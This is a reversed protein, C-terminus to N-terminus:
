KKWKYKVLTQEKLPVFNDYINSLLALTDDMSLDHSLLLNKVQDDYEAQELYYSLCYLNYNRIIEQIKNNCQNMFDLDLESIHYHSEISDKMEPASIEWVENIACLRLRHERTAYKQNRNFCHRGIAQRINYGDNLLRRIYSIDLHEKICFHNLLINGVFYKGFMPDEQGNKCYHSIANDVTYKYCKILYYIASYNYQNDICYQFLSKNGVMYKESKTCLSIILEVDKDTYYEDNKLMVYLKYASINDNNKIIEARSCLRGKYPYKKIQNKKIVEVAENIDYGEQLRRYLNSADVQALSSIESITLEQDCWIYKRPIRNNTPVRNKINNEIEEMTMAQKLYRYITKSNIKTLESFQAVSVLTGHYPYLKTRSANKRPAVYNVADSVSMKALRKYMESKGIHALEALEPVTYLKGEFEYEVHKKAMNM